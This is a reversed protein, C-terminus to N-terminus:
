KLEEEGKSEVVFWETLNAYGGNGDLSSGSLWFAYERDIEVKPIAVTINGDGAEAFRGDFFQKMTAWGWTERKAFVLELEYPVDTTWELLIKDGIHAIEIAPVTTLNVLAHGLTAFTTALLGAHMAVNKM